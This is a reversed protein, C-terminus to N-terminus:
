IEIEVRKRQRTEKLSQGSPGSSENEKGVSGGAEAKSLVLDAVASKTFVVVRVSTGNRAIIVLKSIKDDKCGM